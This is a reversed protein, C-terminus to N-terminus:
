RNKYVRKEVKEIKETTKKDMALKKEQDIKRHHFDTIDKSPIYLVYKESSVSPILETIPFLHHNKIGAGQLEDTFDGGIM